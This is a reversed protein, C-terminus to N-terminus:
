DAFGMTQTPGLIPLGYEKLKGEVIEEECRVAEYPGLDMHFSADKPSVRRRWVPSAM